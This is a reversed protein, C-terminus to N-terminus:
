LMAFSLDKTRRHSKQLMTNIKLKLDTSSASISNCKDIFM